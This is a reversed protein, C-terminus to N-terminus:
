PTNAICSTIYQIYELMYYKITLSCDANIQRDFIVIEQSSQYIFLNPNEMYCIAQYM